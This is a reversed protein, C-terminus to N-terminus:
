IREGTGARTVAREEGLDISVGFDGIKLGWDRDLFINEPKIDRHCIGRAHLYSLADLFPTMVLRLVQEESMRSGAARRHLCCLDGHAAYEQVLVLRGEEQFAGYLKIIHPHDLESHIRIERALMHLANMPVRDLFYVKLAVRLHSHRCTALYVSSNAGQYLRRSILYDSLSWVPRLLAAPTAPSAALPSSLPQQQQQQQQQLHPHRPPPPPPPHHPPPDQQQQQQQLANRKLTDGTQRHADSANPSVVALPPSGGAPTRPAVTNSRCAGGHEMPLPALDLDASLSSGNVVLTAETANVSAAIGPRRGLHLDSAAGM